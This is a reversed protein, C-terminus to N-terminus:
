LARWACRTAWSRRRPIRQSVLCTLMFCSRRRREGDVAREEGAHSLITMDYARVREYFADCAASLPDIGMSNPLWKVLKVGRRHAAELAELADRRYPHVSCSPVFVDPHKQCVRFVWDDPTHLTTRAFDVSGDLRYHKDFALLVHKGHVIRKLM